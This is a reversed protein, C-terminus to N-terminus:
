TVSWIMGGLSGWKQKKTNQIIKVKCIYDKQLNSLWCLEFEPKEFGFNWYKVHSLTVEVIEIEM